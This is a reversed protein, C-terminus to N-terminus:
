SLVVNGVCPYHAEMCEGHVSVEVDVVHVAFQLVKVLVCWKSLRELIKREIKTLRQM